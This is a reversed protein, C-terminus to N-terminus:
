KLAPWVQTGQVKITLDRDLQAASPTVVVKVGKSNCSAPLPSVRKVTLSTAADYSDSGKISDFKSGVNARTWLFTTEDKIGALTTVQCIEVSALVFEITSVCSTPEITIPNVFFPILGIRDGKLRGGAAWFGLHKGAADKIYAQMTFIDNSKVIKIPDGWNSVFDTLPQKVAKGDVTISSDMGNPFVLSVGISARDTSNTAPNFCGHSMALRNYTGEVGDPSEDIVTTQLEDHAFASDTVMFGSVLLSSVLLNKMKNKKM